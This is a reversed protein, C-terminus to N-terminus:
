LCLPCNHKTSSFIVKCYSRAKGNIIGNGTNQPFVEINCSINLEGAFCPDVAFYLPIDPSIAQDEAFARLDDAVDLHLREDALSFNLPINANFGKQDFRAADDLTPAGNLIQHHLGASNEAALDGNGFLFEMDHFSFLFFPCLWNKLFSGTTLSTTFPSIKSRLPQSAWM